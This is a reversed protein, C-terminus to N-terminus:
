ASTKPDSGIVASVEEALRRPPTSSRLLIKKVGSRDLLDRFEKQRNGTLVVVPVDNYREISPLFQLLFYNPDGNSDISLVICSLDMGKRLSSTAEEFGSIDIVKYGESILEHAYNLLDLGGSRASGVVLLRKDRELGREEVRQAVYRSILERDKERLAVFRIGMGVPEIMFQVVADAIILVDLVPFQVTVHDGAGFTRGSLLFMGGESIDVAKVPLSLNILVKEGYGVRAKRQHRNQIDEIQVGLKNAFAAVKEARTDFTASLQVLFDRLGDNSDKLADILYKEAPSSEIGYIRGILDSLELKVKKLNAANELISDVESLNVQAEKFAKPASQIIRREMRIIQVHSEEERHLDMFFEAAEKNLKHDEHLKKYLGSMETEVKELLDLLKYVDM